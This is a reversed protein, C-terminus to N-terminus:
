HVSSFYELFKGAAGLGTHLKKWAFVSAMSLEPYLPRFVFRDSSLMDVAGELTLACADGTEVFVATNLILNHTAFKNIRSPPTKLWSGLESQIPLRNSLILKENILDERVVYEKKALPHTPCVLVGWRERTKMRIYDFKAIDAPELLLGFDLVGAELDEKVYEASNTYIRFSVKPYLKKFTVMVAALEKFSALGGCGVSIIGGVEDRNTLEDEIKDMLISVEEARRRLLIGAETLTLHRGRVFLTTGLEEELQALQRSLTPQTVHLVEAARSINEEEVVTLFYKLLRLEM